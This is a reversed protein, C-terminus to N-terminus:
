SAIIYDQHINNNFEILGCELMSYGLRINPIGDDVNKIIIHPVIGMVLMQEQSEIAITIQEFDHIIYNILLRYVYKM